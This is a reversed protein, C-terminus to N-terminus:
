FRELSASLMTKTLAEFSIAQPAASKPFLSTKTMGPITNIELFYAKDGELIFDVRAFDRCKCEKFIAEAQAKLNLVLAEPIDAPSVYVTDKSNYKANYDYRECIIEVVELARGGLIGITLERGNLAREILWSGTEIKSLALGLSSRGKIFTVGCSSGSNNPKLVLTDGIKEIVADALPVAGAEILRYDATEINIKEACKKAAFKDMCLASSESGSGVFNIGREELLSQLQGDEGFAGHMVPFVIHRDKDIWDPLTNTELCVEKIPYQDKLSEAVSQGSKISISREDGIGGYVIVISEFAKMKM